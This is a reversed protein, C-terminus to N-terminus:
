GPTTIPQRGGTSSRKRMTLVPAVPIVQPIRVRFTAGQGVVSEVTITGHHLEVLRQAISLGLGSNGSRDSEHARARDARYFRDFVHPLDHAAIGEGNDSVEILVQGTSASEPYARIIIHGGPHTHRMANDLLNGLVQRMRGGDLAVCPLTPVAELILTRDQEAAMPQWFDCVGDLFDYLPTSTLQLRVQDADMLSLLRLDEILRQLWDIEERLSVAAADPTQMGAQLAEVELQMASLPTRLDHAVDAMMQRRLREQRTVENAMRNFAHTLDGFENHSRVVLPENWEGRALRQVGIMLQRAPHTIQGSLWFGLGVALGATLAGSALLALNIADLLNRQEENLVGLAAGIVLTGVTTGNVVIPTGQKLVFPAIPQGLGSNGDTAVVIGNTDTILIQEPTFPHTFRDIVRASSGAGPLAPPYQGDQFPTNATLSGGSESQARLAILLALWDPLPPAVQMVDSVGTWSGNNQYYVAYRKALEEAHRQASDTVLLTLGRETVGRAVVGTLLLPIMILPLYTAMLQWRLPWRWTMRKWWRYIQKARRM